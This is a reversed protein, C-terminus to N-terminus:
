INNVYLNLKCYWPTGPVPTSSVPRSKDQKKHASIAHSEEEKAVAKIEAIKEEVKAVIVPEPKKEVVPTHEVQKYPEPQSMENANGIGPPGRSLKAAVFLSL